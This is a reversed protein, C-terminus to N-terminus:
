FLKLKYKIKVFFGMGKIGLEFLLFTCFHKRTVPGFCLGAMKGFMEGEHKLSLRVITHVLQVFFTFDFSM